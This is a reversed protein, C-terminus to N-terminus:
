WDRECRNSGAFRPEARPLDAHRGPPDKVRQRREQRRGFTAREMSRSEPQSRHRPWLRPRAAPRSRRSLEPPRLWSIRPLTPPSISRAPCARTNCRSASNGSWSPSVGHWLYVHHCAAQRRCRDVPHRRPQLGPTQPRFTVDVSCSSGSILDGQCTSNALTFDKNPQGLTLANAAGLTGGTVVNYVLHVTQSCPAPTTYGAHCVNATGAPSSQSLAVIRNGAVDAAIINESGDVAVNKAAIGQM